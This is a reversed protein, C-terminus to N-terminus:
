EYSYYIVKKGEWIYMNPNDGKDRFEPNPTMYDSGYRAQLWEDYNVIASVEIDEFPIRVVEYGVPFENRRAELCGFKEMSHKWTVAGPYPHFDCQYTPFKDDSYIYYIDITIGDKIYTDERALKGEEIEFTHQLKFGGKELATRIAPSYDKYFMMTDIDLDHKIFGKEIVSGLLTGAFVSYHFNHQMMIEDFAKLVNVANERFLRNRNDNIRKKYPYYIPKLLAKLGPIKAVKNALVLLWSPPVIRM